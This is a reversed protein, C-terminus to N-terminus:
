RLHDTHHIGVYTDEKETMVAVGVVRDQPKVTDLM